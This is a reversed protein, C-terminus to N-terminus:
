PIRPIKRDLMHAVVALMMALALPTLMACVVRALWGLIGPNPHLVINLVAYAAAAVCLAVFGLLYPGISKALQNLYAVYM